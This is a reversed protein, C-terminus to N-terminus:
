IADRRFILDHVIHDALRWGLKALEEIVTKEREDDFCEIQAYGFNQGFLNSAGRLVEVEYGEVDIKVFICSGNLSVLEDIPVVDIKYGEAGAAVVGALCDYGDPQIELAAEHRSAGAAVQHIEVPPLANLQMNGHLQAIVDPNPEFAIVRQVLKHQGLICTYLGFNAGIDVFVLPHMERAAKLMADLQLWEFRQLLMEAGIPNNRAVKFHAGFFRCDEIDRDPRWLRRLRHWRKRTSAAMKWHLPPRRRGRMVASM